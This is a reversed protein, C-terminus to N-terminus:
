GRIVTEGQEDTDIFTQGDMPKPPEKPDNLAGRLAAEVIIRAEMNWWCVPLAAVGREIM